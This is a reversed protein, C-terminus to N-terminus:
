GKQMLVALAHKQESSLTKAADDLLKHEAVVHEEYERELRKRLAELQARSAAATRVLHIMRQVVGALADHGRELEAIPADFAASQQRLVPFLAAEERAFHDLADDQLSSLADLLEDRVPGLDPETLLREVEQMMRFVARHDHDVENTLQTAM